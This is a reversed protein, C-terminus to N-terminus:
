HLGGAQGEELGTLGEGNDDHAFERRSAKWRAKQAKRIKEDVAAYSKEDLNDKKDRGKSRKGIDSGKTGEPASNSKSAAQPPQFREIPKNKPPHPFIDGWSSKRADYFAQKGQSKPITLRMIKGEQTCADIIIHGSKKLPPFVLRPWGYAERRLAGELNSPPEWEGPATEFRPEAESHSSSSPSCASNSESAFPTKAPIQNLASPTSTSTPSSFGLTQTRVPNEEPSHVDGRPSTVAEARVSAVSLVEADVTGVGDDVMPVHAQAQPQDAPISNIDLAPPWPSQAQSPAPRATSESLSPSPTHVIMHQHRNEYARELERPVGIRAKAEREMAERGVGGVRGVLGRAGLMSSGPRPGRRVVVYSYGIDEHGERAHKTRRVFTPRQLRQSFGCVLRSSGSHQLPCSHDHPCPAVVHSGRFPTDATELDEMEKRGMELLLQRAQAINEFGAPSNHDILIITHAGSDWMEKVMNRKALPTSLASLMFASLALADHGEALDVCDDEHFSKQWTASLAGLNTEQLLQKGISVLGDRKDIGLYAIISSNALLPGDGPTLCPKQFTNLAAWLGGGTGCGWDIVRDVNWSAGLRHKVHHLVAYIASYHAPLIISAFATGDRESHRYSQKRNKYEVDYATTWAKGSAGQEAFLRKADSHLLTKDTGEILATVTRQLEPPLVVAGIGDSGFRAAPSKRDERHRAPEDFPLDQHDIDYYEIDGHDNAFAELERPPSEIPEDPRGHKHTMLSMDVAQLLSKLSPDLALSPKPQPAAHASATSSFGSVSSRASRSLLVRLSARTSTIM